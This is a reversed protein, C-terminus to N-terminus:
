VLKSSFHYHSIEEIITINLKDPFVLIKAWINLQRNEIIILIGM